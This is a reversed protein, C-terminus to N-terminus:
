FSRTRREQRIHDAVQYFAPKPRGREDMIGWSHRADGPHDQIEYFFVKKLWPHDPLGGLIGRYYEAQGGAASQRGVETLWVPKEAQGAAILLERLGSTEWFGKPGALQRFVEQPEEAYQHHTIIDLRDGARRLIERLWVEWDGTHALEPGLVRASPNARRIAQAGAKLISEIYAKRSGRWFGLNPENWLGWHRIDDRYREVVAGVFDQWDAYRAPPYHSSDRGERRARALLEPDLAWAPTYALTAYIRLGRERAERVLRDLDRWDHRGKGRREVRRWNVDIRIWGIGARECADLAATPGGHVNIGYPGGVLRRPAGQTGPM